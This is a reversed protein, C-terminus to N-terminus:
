EIECSTPAVLPRKVRDVPSLKQPNKTNQVIQRDEFFFGYRGEVGVFSGSAVAWRYEDSTKVDARSLSRSM